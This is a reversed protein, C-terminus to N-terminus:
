ADHIPHRPFSYPKVCHVMDQWQRVNGGSNDSQHRPRRGLRFLFTSLRTIGGTQFEFSYSTAMSPTFDENAQYGGVSMALHKGTSYLSCFRNGSSACFSATQKEPGQLKLSVQYIVRQNVGRFIATTSTSVIRFILFASV